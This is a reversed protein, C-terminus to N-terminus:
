NLDGPHIKKHPGDQDFRVFENHLRKEIRKEIEEVNLRQYEEEEEIDDDASKKIAGPSKQHAQITSKRELLELPLPQYWGATRVM